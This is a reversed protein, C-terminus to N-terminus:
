LSQAAEDGLAQRLKDTDIEDLDGRREAGRLQRELEELRQLEEMVRMAEAFSLSEQGAFPYRQRVEEMPMLSDMLASLQSLERQLEPDNLAANITEQLQNRLEAPLSELLSQMQAMQNQLHEMLEDLDQPPNDGFLPGWRQMFQSFNPERGQMRDRLMQNLERLMQKLGAMQEPTMSQMQQMVSQMYSQMAQQKLSDLLEQFKRRAEEDLFEYDSLARIAGGPDEPLGEMFELKRSALGELARATQSDLTRQQGSQGAGSPQGSSRSRQGPQAGGPQGESGPQEGRERAERARQLDRELEKLFEQLDEEADQAGQTASGQHDEAGPDDGTPSTAAQPSEQLAGRAEQLRQALTEKELAEIERLKERIDDMISNLNYRDLHQQRQQRLRELLNRLGEMSRGDPTRMGRMMLRRLARSIDGHSILEDSIEEMLDEHRPPFPDQTNDWRGYRYIVM